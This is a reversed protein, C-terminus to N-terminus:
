KEFQSVVRGMGLARLQPLQAYNCLVPVHLHRILVVDFGGALVAFCHLRVFARTKGAACLARLGM